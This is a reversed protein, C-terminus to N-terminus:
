CDWFIFHQKTAKPAVNQPKMNRVIYSLNSLICSLMIVKAWDNCKCLRTM